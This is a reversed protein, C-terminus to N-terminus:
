RRVVPDSARRASRLVTRCHARAGQAVVVALLLAGTGLAAAAWWHLLVLLGAM